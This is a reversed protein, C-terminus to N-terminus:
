VACHKEAVAVSFARLLMDTWLICRSRCRLQAAFLM